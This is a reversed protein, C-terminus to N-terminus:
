HEYAVIIQPAVRASLPTNLHESQSHQMSESGEGTMNRGESMSRM